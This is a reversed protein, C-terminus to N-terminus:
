REMRRIYATNPRTSAGKFPSVTNMGNNKYIGQPSVARIVYPSAKRRRKMNGTKQAYLRDWVNAM